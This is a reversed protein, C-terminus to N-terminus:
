PSHGEIDEDKTEGESVERSVGGELLCKEKEKEKKISPCKVTVLPILIM